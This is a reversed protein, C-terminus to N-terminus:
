DIFPLYGARQAISRTDTVLAAFFKPCAHNIAYANLQPSSVIKVTVLVKMACLRGDYHGCLSVFATLPEPLELMRRCPILLHHVSGYWSFVTCTEAVHPDRPRVRSRNRRLCPFAVSGSRATPLPAARSLTVREGLKWWCLTGPYSALALCYGHSLICAKQHSACAIHENGGRPMLSISNNSSHSIVRVAQTTSPLSLDLRRCTQTLM